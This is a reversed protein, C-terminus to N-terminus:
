KKKVVQAGAMIVYDPALVTVEGNAFAAPDYEAAAPEGTRPAEAKPEEAKHEETWTAFHPLSLKKELVGAGKLPLQPWSRM